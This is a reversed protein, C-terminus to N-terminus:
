NKPLKLNNLKRIISDIEEKQLNLLYRIDEVSIGSYLMYLIKLETESLNMEPANIKSSLRSVLIRYIKHIINTPGALLIKQNSVKKSSGYSIHIHIVEEEEKTHKVKHILNLPVKVVQTDGIYVSLYRKNIILSGLSWEIMSDKINFQVPKCVIYETDDINKIKRLKKGQSM